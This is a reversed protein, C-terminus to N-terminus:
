RVLEMRDGRVQYSSLEKLFTMGILTDSLAKDDLVMAGVNEVRVSGLEIRKLRVYAARAKGNATDVAYRFALDKRAIGLREATSLNLAVMSAGTDVLGDVRKGNIVFSGNFHGSGDASLTARRGASSQAAVQEAAAIGAAVEPRNAEGSFYVGALPPVYIAAAAIGGAFALSRFLM